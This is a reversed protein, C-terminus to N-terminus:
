FLYVPFFQADLQDNVLFDYRSARDVFYLVNGCNVYYRYYEYCSRNNNNNNNNNKNDDDDNKEKKKKKKKLSHVVVIASEKV